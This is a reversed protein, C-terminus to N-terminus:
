KQHLSVNYLFTIDTRWRYIVAGTISFVKRFIFIFNALIAREYSPETCLWLCLSHPLQASFRVNRLLIFTQRWNCTRTQWRGRWQSLLGARLWVISRAPVRPRPAPPGIFPRWSHVSQLFFELICGPHKKRSTIIFEQPIYIAYTTKRCRM